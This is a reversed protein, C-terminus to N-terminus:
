NAVVLMNALVHVTFEAKLNLMQLIFKVCPDQYTKHIRIFKVCTDQNM